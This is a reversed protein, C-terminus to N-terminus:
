ATVIPMVSVMGLIGGVSNKKTKVNFGLILVWHAIREMGIVNHIIVSQTAHAVMLRPNVNKM